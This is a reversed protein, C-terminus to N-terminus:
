VNVLALRVFTKKKTKKLLLLLPGVKGGPYPLVQRVVRVGERWSPELRLLKHAQAAPGLHAALLHLGEPLSGVRAGLVREM